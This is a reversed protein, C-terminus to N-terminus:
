KGVIANTLWHWAFSALTALAQIPNTVVQLIMAIIVIVGFILALVIFDLLILLMPEVVGILGGQSKALEVESSMINNDMWEHGLKTFFKHGFISGLWVHINIWILTLGYSDILNLWSQQLLKSTGQSAAATIASGAATGLNGAAAGAEGQQKRLMGRVASWVSTGAAGETAGSVDAAEGGGQRAERLAGAKAASTASGSNRNLLESDISM